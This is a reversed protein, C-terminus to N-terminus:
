KLRSVRHSFFANSDTRSSPDQGDRKEVKSENNSYSISLSLSIILFPLSLLPSVWLKSRKLLLWLNSAPDCWIPSVIWLFRCPCIRRKCSLQLWVLAVWKWIFLARISLWPHSEALRTSDVTRNIRRYADSCCRSKETMGKVFLVIGDMLFEDRFLFLVILNRFKM